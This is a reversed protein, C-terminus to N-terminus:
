SEGKAQKIEEVIWPWMAAMQRKVDDVSPQYSPNRKRKHHTLFTTASAAFDHFQEPIDTEEAVWDRADWHRRHSAETAALSARAADQKTRTVANFSGGSKMADYSTM